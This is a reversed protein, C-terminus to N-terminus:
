YLLTLSSPWLLCDTTNCRKIINKLSLTVNQNAPTQFFATQSVSYAEDRSETEGASPPLCPYRHAGWDMAEPSSKVRSVWWIDCAIGIIHHSFLKPKGVNAILAQASWTKFLWCVMNHRSHGRKNNYTKVWSESVVWKLDFYNFNVEISLDM